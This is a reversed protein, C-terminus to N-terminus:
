HVLMGPCHRWASNGPQNVASLTVWNPNALHGERANNSICGQRRGDNLEQLSLDFDLRPRCSQRPSPFVDRRKIRIAMRQDISCHEIPQRAQFYDTVVAHTDIM